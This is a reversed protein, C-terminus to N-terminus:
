YKYENVRIYLAAASRSFDEPMALANDWGYWFLATIPQFFSRMEWHIFNSMLEKRVYPLLISELEASVDDAFEVAIDKIADYIISGIEDRIQTTAIPLMVKLGDNEHKLLGHSILEAAKEEESPSLQKNPNKSLEILLFINSSDVWADRGWRWDNHDVLEHPFPECEYLNGFEAYGYEASSFHQHLCSYGRARIEICPCNEDPLTYHMTLRYDREAEDPYKDNYKQEYHKGAVDIFVTDAATYLLWLLYGYDFDNGYFDLARIKPEAAFLADNIRKTYGKDHFCDIATKRATGLVSRPFVCHNAQYKGKAPSVILRQELMREIFDELYVPSVGMEDAIENLTKAESRCIVMIQPCIRSSRMLISPNMANYGWYWNVDAPAYASKGITNMAEFREKLDKKASFLRWKVTGVPINLDDAIQSIPQEKLYFRIIIDRYMSVLRSLSFNLESVTEEGILEDIPQHSIDPIGIIEDIPLVSSKKKAIYDAYMNRAMRWFWSHFSVFSKGSNITRIAELLIDQSLDKAAESDSVRKVCFLYTNEILEDTIYEEM